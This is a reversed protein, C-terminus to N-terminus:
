EVLVKISPATVISKVIAMRALFETAPGRRDNVDLMDLTRPPQSAKKCHRLGEAIHVPLFQLLEPWARVIQGSTNCANLITMTLSYTQKSAVKLAAQMEAWEHVENYSPHEPRVVYAPAGGTAVIRQSSVYQKNTFSVRLMHTGVVVKTNYNTNLMGCMKPDTKITNVADLIAPPMTSYVFNRLSEDSTDIPFKHVATHCDCLAEVAWEIERKNHDKLRVSGIAKDYEYYNM